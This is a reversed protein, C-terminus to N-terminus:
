RKLSPQSEESHEVHPPPQANRALSLRAKLAGDIQQLLSADMEPFSLLQGATTNTLAQV